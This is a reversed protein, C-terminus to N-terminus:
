YTMNCQILFYISSCVFLYVTSSLCFLKSYRSGLVRQVMQPQDDEDPRSHFVLMNCSIFNLIFLALMMLGCTFIGLREFILPFILLSSGLTPNITAIITQMSSNEARFGAPSEADLDENFDTATLHVNSIRKFPGIDSVRLNSGYNSGYNM